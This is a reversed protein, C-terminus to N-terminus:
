EYDLDIELGIYDLDTDLGVCDSDIERAMRRIEFVLVRFINQPKDSFNEMSKSVTTAWVEDVRICFMESMLQLINKLLLHEALTRLETFAELGVYDLDMYKHENIEAPISHSVVTQPDFLAWFSDHFEFHSIDDELM